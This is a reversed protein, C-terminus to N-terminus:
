SLIERIEAGLQYSGDSVSELRVVEVLAHLPPVLSREPEIRVELRTGPPYRRAVTLAIGRASLNHARGTCAEGSELETCRVPCDVGMRLFDRKESYNRGPPVM